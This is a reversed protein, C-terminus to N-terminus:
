HVARSSPKWSTAPGENDRILSLAAESSDTREKDMHKLAARVVDRYKHPSLHHLRRAQQLGILHRQRYPTRASSIRNTTGTRHHIVLRV